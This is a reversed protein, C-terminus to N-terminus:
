LPLCSLRGQGARLRSRMDSVLTEFCGAESWRRFQQYVAPWPPFDHPLLRWPAGARALWRLANFVERLSHERQPADEKMLTLYPAVFDWEEQSLDSPYSQIKM